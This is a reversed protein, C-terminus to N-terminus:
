NKYSAVLTITAILSVIVAKALIVAAIPAICDTALALGDSNLLVSLQQLAVIATPCIICGRYAEVLAVTAILPHITAEVLIGAAVAAILDIVLSRNNARLDVMLAAIDVIISANNLMLDVINTQQWANLKAHSQKWSRSESQFYVSRADPCQWM